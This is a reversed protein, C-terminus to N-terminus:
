RELAPERKAAAPQKKDQSKAAKTEPETNARVSGKTLALVDEPSLADDRFGGLLDAVRPTVEAVEGQGVAAIPKEGAAQARQRPVEGVPRAALADEASLADDHFAGMADATRRDVAVVHGVNAAQAAHDAARQIRNRDLEPPLPRAAMADRSTLADDVFAGMREATRRDVTVVHGKAASIEAWWSTADAVAQEATVVKGGIRKAAKAAAQPYRASVIAVRAEPHRARLEDALPAVDKERAAIVVPMGTAKHIQAATTCNTAIVIPGRWTPKDGDPDADLLRGKDLVHRLGRPAYQIEGMDCTRGQEDVARLAWTRGDRDRMPLVIRGDGDIKMGVGEIHDLHLNPTDPTEWPLEGFWHRLAPLISKPAHTRPAPSGELSHLLERYSVIIAMALADKHADALLYDRWAHTNLFNRRLFGSMAPTRRQQTFMKWLRDQGPHRILPRAIYPQRPQPADPRQEAAEQERQEAPEYSGLRDQLAKLSCSRDLSSARMTASRHGGLHFFVLGAGRRKLSTDFGALVEHVERWTTADAIGAVVDAKNEKLHSEFSQQWTRAEFDRAGPSLDQDSAQAKGRDVVLGYKKELRRCAKERKDYDMFPSHVRLTKPHVKNVAVHMHYHDTNVHTGAVRQHESFGLADAFEREIEKLVDPTLMARDEPRFSVLFHYTKEAIDPKLTRVAEVEYLATKLDEPETGANCNVIWLRELKEGPERAAAIYEALYTFNDPKGPKREPRKSIM